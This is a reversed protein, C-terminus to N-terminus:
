TLAVAAPIAIALMMLVVVSFQRLSPPVRPAFHRLAVVFAIGFVGLFLMVNLAGMEMGKGGSTLFRPRNLAVCTLITTAIPIFALGTLRDTYLIVGEIDVAPKEPAPTEFETPPRYVNM